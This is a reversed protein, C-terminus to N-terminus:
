FWNHHIRSFTTGSTGFDIIPAWHGPPSSRKFQFGSLSFSQTGSLNVGFLSVYQDSADTITTLNIGAGTITISKTISLSQTWTCNASPIIITDGHSAQNFASQVSPQNCSAATITAARASRFRIQIDASGLFYVLVFVLLILAGSALPLFKKM